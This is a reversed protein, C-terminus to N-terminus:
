GANSGAAKQCIQIVTERYKSLTDDVIGLSPIHGPTPNQPAAPHFGGEHVGTSGDGPTGDALHGLARAYRTLMQPYRYNREVGLWSQNVPFFHLMADYWGEGAVLLSPFRRHLEDILLRYVEM